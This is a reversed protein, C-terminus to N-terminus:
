RFLAETTSQGYKFHNKLLDFRKQNVVNPFLHRRGISHHVDILASFKMAKPARNLEIVTLRQSLMFKGDLLHPMALDSRGALPHLKLHVHEQKKEQLISYQYRPLLVYNDNCLQGPGLDTFILMRIPKGLAGLSSPLRTGLFM